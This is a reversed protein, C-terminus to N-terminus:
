IVEIEKYEYLESPESQWDEKERYAKKNSGDVYKKASEEDLFVIEMYDQIDSYPTTDYSYVLYGKM